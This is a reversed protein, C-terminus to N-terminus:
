ESGGTAGTDPFDAPAVEISRGVLERVLLNVSGFPARNLGTALATAVQESVGRFTLEQYVGNENIFSIVYENNM